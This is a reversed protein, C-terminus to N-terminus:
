PPLHGLDVREPLVVADRIGAPTLTRVHVGGSCGSVLLARCAELVKALDSADLMLPQEHDLSHVEYVFDKPDEVPAHDAPEKSTQPLAADYGDEFGRVMALRNPSDPLERHYRDVARKRREPDALSEHLLLAREIDLTHALAWRGLAEAGMTAARLQRAEGVMGRFEDSLM